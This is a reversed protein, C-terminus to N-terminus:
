CHQVPAHLCVQVKIVLTGQGAMENVSANLATSQFVPQHDNIDILRITVNASSRKKSVVDEAIVQATCDAVLLM